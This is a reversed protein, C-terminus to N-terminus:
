QSPTDAVHDACLHWKCKGPPTISYYCARKECNAPSPPPPPPPPPAEPRDNWWSM